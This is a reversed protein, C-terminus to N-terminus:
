WYTLDPRDSPGVSTSFIWGKSCSRCGLRQSNRRCAPHRRARAARHAPGCRGSLVVCQSTSAIRNSGQSAAVPPPALSLVALLALTIQSVQMGKLIVVVRLM